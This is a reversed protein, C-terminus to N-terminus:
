PGKLNWIACKFDSDVFTGEVDFISVVFDTKGAGDVEAMLPTAAQPSCTAADYTSYYSVGPIHIVYTGDGVHKVRPAKKAPAEHLQAMLKGNSQVAIVAAPATKDAPKAAKHHHPLSAAAYGTGTFAVALALTSAVNAYRSSSFLQM